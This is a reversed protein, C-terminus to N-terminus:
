LADSNSETNEKEVLKNEVIVENLKELILDALTGVGNINLMAIRYYRDIDYRCKDSLKGVDRRMDETKTILFYIQLQQCVLTVIIITYFLSKLYKM